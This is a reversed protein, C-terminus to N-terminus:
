TWQSTGISGAAKPSDPRLVDALLPQESGDGSSDLHREIASKAASFAALSDEVLERCTAVDGARGSTEMARCLHGLRLAGVTLAASGLKHAEDAAKGPEAGRAAVTMATIQYGAGSLFKELLSHHMAASGGVYEPLVDVDWDAHAQLQPAPPTTTGTQPLAGAAHLSEIPRPMWKDIMEGLAKMRLPKPLYDNMGHEICRQLEGSMAGATIAIVPLRANASEENRIADTLEFGNLNPMHCDTLLMAYRGTRWMALAQAGDHAMESAYGLLRLQAGIVDRNTENDEAVLILQRKILAEEVGLVAKNPKRSYDRALSDGEPAILRGSATAVAQVIDVYFAPRVKLRIDDAFAGSDRRVMRVVGVGAPLGLEATPTTVLPGLMVVTSGTRHTTALGQRAAELDPMMTIQAGAARCYSQMIEISLADRTVCIVEVGQLTPEYVPMGDPSAAQLPLEVSFESGEGLTSQVSIHGGMLEVLRQTISLGLGTGGFRRATSADAQAFPRFLKGLMQPEIGIGDDIVRLRVAPQGNAAVVPDVRLVVRPVQRERVQTFKVANGLLNLLVQRLRTPDCYIWHPLEPSVFVTLDIKKAGMSTVILQAVSEVVDRLHTPLSEVSLKGAEIKSFDLIDNIIQLLALSSAHITDVMRQQEPQLPTQQLIDVMGVVGNMPTRIEHSMNALFASKAQSAAIAAQEAVIQDTIDAFSWVRGVVDTGIKQPQSNRKFTRGDALAVMDTSSEEPHAYLEKIRAIFVEPQAVQALMHNMGKVRDQGELFEHPMNWLTIFKQNWRSLQGSSDVVLIGEATSDLTANLMSLSTSLEGEYRKRETIDTRVAIYELPTGDEALFAAVTSDVWYLHGDKARNCIEGHWAKGSRITDYMAKFFGGPHYGSNVIAHDRGILEAHSYGSIQSFRENCYTISGDISCMSVIAHEDLVFKQQKLAKLAQHALDTSIQLDNTRLQVLDELHLRQTSLSREDAKRQTIDSSVAVVLRRESLELASYRIHIDRVSGDKHRFHAEYEGQGKAQVLQLRENVPIAADSGTRIDSVRLRSFEERSYGLMACAAPNFEVFVDRELDALSIAESAQTVITRYIAEREALHIQMLKATTVDQHSVVAGGRAGHLPTVNMRFWRSKHPAHCPYELSFVSQANALVARIGALAACADDLPAGFNVGACLDLYNVGLSSADSGSAGNEQGFLRWARNVAVIVGQQDLVAVHEALSDLVERNFDESARLDSDVQRVVTRLRDVDLSLGLEVADKRTLVLATRWAFVAFVLSAVIGVLPSTDASRHYITLSVGFAIALLAWVLPTASFRTHDTTGESDIPRNFFSSSDALLKFM